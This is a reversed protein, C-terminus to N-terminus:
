LHPSAFVELVAAGALLAAVILASRVLSYRAGARARLWVSVAVAAGALEFPLGHLYPLLRVNWQVLASVISWLNLALVLVLAVDGVVRWGRHRHFGLIVLGFPLALVRANTAFIGLWSAFDAHLTPHPAM